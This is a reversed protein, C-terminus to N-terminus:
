RQQLQGSGTFELIVGVCSLSVWRSKERVLLVNHIVKKLKECQKVVM